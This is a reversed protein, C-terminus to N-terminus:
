QLQLLSTHLSENELSFRVRGEKHGALHFPWWIGSAVLHPLSLHAPSGCCSSPAPSGSRCWRLATRAPVGLYGPPRRSRAALRSSHISFCQPWRPQLPRMVHVFTLCSIVGGCRQAKTVRIRSSDLNSYTNENLLSMSDSLLLVSEAETAYHYRDQAFSFLHTCSGTASVLGHVTSKWGRLCAGKGKWCVRLNRVWLYVRM